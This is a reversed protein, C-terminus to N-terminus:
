FTKGVALKNLQQLMFPHACMLRMLAENAWAPRIFLLNQLMNGREVRGKLYGQLYKRQEDLIAAKGLNGNLVKCIVPYLVDANRFALSMGNGTLPPIFGAADGISAVPLSQFQQHVGFSFQSTTIPGEIRSASLREALAKNQGLENRELLAISGHRKLASAKCLYAMCYRGGEIASIGAYGSHFAHIEISNAAPGRDLHYKVGVWENKPRVKQKTMFGGNRGWSGVVLEGMYSDGTHTHVIFGNDISQANTVRQNVVVTVGVGVAREFLWHDLKYRSVGIGGPTLTIHGNAGGPSTFKFRDIKPFESSRLDIGLRRLFPVSENSIFEGCVKHRPYEDKEIVLVAAGDMSAMIALSLGALGGGAIILDFQKTM